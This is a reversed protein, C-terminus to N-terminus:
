SAALQAGGDLHVAEWREMADWDAGDLTAIAARFLGFDEKSM